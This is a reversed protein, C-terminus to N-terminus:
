TYSLTYAATGLPGAGSGPRRGPRSIGGTYRTPAWCCPGSSPKPRRVCRTTKTASPRGRSATSRRRPASSSTSTLPAPRSESLWPAGCARPAGPSRAARTRPRSTAPYSAFATRRILSGGALFRTQHTATDLDLRREYDAIGGTTSLQIRLDAFPLFAQGHRHQLRRMAADAAVYDGDAIASRAEAIADHAAGTTVVPPAMESLDSGSWATGENIQVRDDLPGGFLMAGQFGNGIPLAETWSEAPRTYRLQSM